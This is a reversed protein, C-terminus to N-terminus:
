GKLYNLYREYNKRSTKEPGFKTNRPIPGSNIRKPADADKYKFADYQLNRLTEPSLDKYSQTSYEIHRIVSIGHLYCYGLIVHRETKSFAKLFHRHFSPHVSVGGYNHVIVPIYNVGYVEKHLEVIVWGACYRDPEWLEDTFYLNVHPVSKIQEECDNYNLHDFPKSELPLKINYVAEKVIEAGRINELIDFSCFGEYEHLLSALESANFDFLALGDEQHLDYTYPKGDVMITAAFCPLYIGRYVGLDKKNNITIQEGKSNIIAM